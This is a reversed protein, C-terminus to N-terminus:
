PSKEHDNFKREDDETALLRTHVQDLIVLVDAKDGKVEAIIAERVRQSLECDKDPTRERATRVQEALEPSPAYRKLHADLFSMPHEGKM